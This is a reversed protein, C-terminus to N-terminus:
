PGEPIERPAAVGRAKETLLPTGQLHFGPGAARRSGTERASPGPDMRPRWAAGSGGSGGEPGARNGPMGPTRAQARVGGGWEGLGQLQPGESLGRGTVRKAEGLRIKSQPNM